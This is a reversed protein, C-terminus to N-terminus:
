YKEASYFGNEDYRNKTQFASRYVYRKIPQGKSNFPFSIASSADGIGLPLHTPLYTDINYGSPIGNKPHNHTISTVANGSADYIEKAVSTGPVKANKGKNIIATNEKGDATAYEISAHEVDTNDAIKKYAAKAKVQDKIELMQVECGDAGVEVRLKADEGINQKIDTEKGNEDMIVVQDEGVKTKQNIYGDRYVQFEDDNMGNPDIRRIPNNRVYQYASWSSYDEALPDVVHWRGLAPDYFRAGYDYWDMGDLEVDSEPQFIFPM